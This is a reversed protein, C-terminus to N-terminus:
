LLNHNHIGQIYKILENKAANIYKQDDIEAADRFAIKVASLAMMRLKLIYKSLVYGAEVICENYNWKLQILWIKM